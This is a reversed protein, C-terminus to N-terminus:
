DASTQALLAAARAIIAVAGPTLTAADLDALAVFGVDSADSGARPYGSGPRGFYTALVYQAQLMGDDGRQMVDYVGTLGVIDAELGTEERVERRAADEATEGREILGGPLSWLGAFPASARKVLLVAGDRFLAASAGARPWPAPARQASDAEHRPAKTRM